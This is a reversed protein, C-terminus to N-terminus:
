RTFKITERNKKTYTKALPINHDSDFDSLKLQNLVEDNKQLLLLSKQLNCYQPPSQTSHTVLAPSAVSNHTAM